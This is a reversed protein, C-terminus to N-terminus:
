ELSTTTQVYVEKTPDNSPKNTPDDIPENTPDASPFLTPNSSPYYTPEQTSQTPEITGAMSCQTSWINGDFYILDGSVFLSKANFISGFNRIGIYGSYLNNFNNFEDNYVTLLQKNNIFIKWNVGNTIQIKLAYYVSLDYIFGINIENGM